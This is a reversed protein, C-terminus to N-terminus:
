KRRNSGAPAAPLAALWNAGYAAFAAHRAAVAASDRFGATRVSRGRSPVAGFSFSVQYVGTSGARGSGARSPNYVSNGYGSVGVYYTGATRATFALYSDLSGSFDDNAAQQRGRSDFVRLYGDLTSSGSLSRADIDSVLRQGAALRVRYLDVDRSGWAGDGIRGALRLDGTTASIVAAATLSDGADVLTAATVMWADSAATAFTGGDAAVIGSGAPNVTLVYSGASATAAALGSVTWRVGDTTTVTVGDLAVAKGDRTLVLDSRDFGTVDRSFQVLVAEVSTTRPDPSIDIVDATVPPPTVVFTAAYAGSSGAPQGSGGVAPDYASNGYASVGVYYTGTAPAVFSLLSDLSGAADDNAALPAGSADFLRLFADLESPEALMAADIDITLTEGAALSVAFLDVDGALNLGDGVFATVTARRDVLTVATATALSDNPEFLDTAPPPPPPPEPPPDIPPQVGAIAQVAAAANLLGGTAVKGALSAVPVATSLIATRIQAATAQPNAAAMLAVTGTVHPTAMSTGSYTAYSNGPVTSYISVGPAAVDVGTVGYNSFSALTNSRDTAAVSIVADSTYAAPYAPTTDINQSENGAAAVFLIGARGGAAIADRLSTSFGGGGWSNNSAVVNIGFDRRMRTVYNIAAVAGSTSGSGNAGLFKLGMISVNWSVGVVGTGNNGVAGITGSVHTGHGQDDMPDADNNAFDWGYVDDVFGNGDNDIGDGAVEGPNQWANAALDRHRYDIGTDIVAVVVSRSGTTVDWAEPADIDADRLGGSQGTNSLGWLQGFSPDNPVAAGTIVYDPEVYAVAATAAAWASVDSASAGPTALSFFGEGLPTSRWNASIALASTTPEAARVIWADPVAQVLQGGWEFQRSGASGLSFSLLDAALLTRPELREPGNAMRRLRNLRKM